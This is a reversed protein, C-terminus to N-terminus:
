LRTKWTRTRAARCPFGTIGPKRIIRLSKISVEPPLPSGPPKGDKFLGPLQSLGRIRSRVPPSRRCTSNSYALLLCALGQALPLGSLCKPKVYSRFSGPAQPPSVLLTLQLAVTTVLNDVKNLAPDLVLTIQWAVPRYRSLGHIPLNAPLLNTNQLSFDESGDRLGEEM